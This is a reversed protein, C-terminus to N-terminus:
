AGTVPEGGGGRGVSRGLRDSRAKGGNLYITRHADWEGYHFDLRDGDLARIELQHPALMQRALGYPECRLFSPDDAPDIPFGDAAAPTLLSRIYENQRQQAKTGLQPYPVADNRGLVCAFSRVLCRCRDARLRSRM